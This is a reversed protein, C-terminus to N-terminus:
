ALLKVGSKKAASMLAHDRTALPLSRRRALELYAADYVTLGYKQALESTASLARENGDHDTELRLAAILATATEREGVSILKRRVAIVLANAVEFFWLSPVVLVAGERIELLLARPTETAQNQLIWALAVSSDVVFSHNM